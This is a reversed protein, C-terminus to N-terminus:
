KRYELGTGLEHKENGCVREVLQDYRYQDGWYTFLAQLCTLGSTHEM